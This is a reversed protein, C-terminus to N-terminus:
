EEEWSKEGTRGYMKGQNVIKTSFIGYVSENKGESAFLFLDQLALESKALSEVLSTGTSNSKIQALADDIQTKYKDFSYNNKRIGSLLENFKDMEGLLELHVTDLKGFIQTEAIQKFLGIGLLVNETMTKIDSFSNSSPVESVFKYLSEYSAITSTTKLDSIKADIDKTKFHVEANRRYQIKVEAAYSNISDLANLYTKYTDFFPLNKIAEVQGLAQEKIEDLLTPDEVVLGLTDMFQFSYPKNNVPAYFNNKSLNLLMSDADTLSYQVYKETTLYNTLFEEYVNNVQESAKQSNNIENQINGQKLNRFGSSISQQFDAVRDAVATKQKLIDKSNVMNMLETLQIDLPSWYESIADFNIEPLKSVISNALSHSRRAAVQLQYDTLDRRLNLLSDLSKAMMSYSEQEVGEKMVMVKFNLDEYKTKINEYKAFYITNNEFDTEINNINQTIKVLSSIISQELFGDIARRLKTTYDVIQKKERLSSDNPITTLLLNIEKAYDQNLAYYYRQAEYLSEIDSYTESKIKEENEWIQGPILIVAILILAAIVVLVKLLISGQGQTNSMEGGLRIM